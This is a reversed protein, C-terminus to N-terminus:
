SLSSSSDGMLFFLFNICVLFFFHTERVCEKNQVLLLINKVEHFNLVRASSVTVVLFSRLSMREIPFGEM